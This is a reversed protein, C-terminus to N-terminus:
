DGYGLSVSRPFEESKPEKRNVTGTWWQGDLIAEIRDGEQVNQAVSADYHEKLVIFDPVNALDHFKVTWSAGTRQGDGDTQALRVVTLRYPKRVYRVEDVIGFEEAALSPKPRMKSSIPYLNLAEVRELYSEHGQRFYVVHDGLQAIYPFRRPETMRMWEPFSDLFSERKQKPRAPKKTPIADATSPGPIDSEDEEPSRVETASSDDNDTAKNRRRQDRKRGEEPMAGDIRQPRQVRRGSSTTVATEVKEEDEEHHRGSGVSGVSFDSDSTDSDSSAEDESSSESNSYSDDMDSQYSEM